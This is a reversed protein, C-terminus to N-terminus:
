KIICIKCVLKLLNIGIICIKDFFPSKKRSSPTRGAYKPVGAAAFGDRATACAAGDTM